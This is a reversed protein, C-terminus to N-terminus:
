FAAEDEIGGLPKQWQLKGAKNLKVIWMDEDGHNGHVDGDNSNTQGGIIFGGDTTQQMCFGFDNEAGGLAKQLMLVPVQAHATIVFCLFLFATIAPILHKKM